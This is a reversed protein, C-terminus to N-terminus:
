PWGKEPHGQSLARKEVRRRLPVAAGDGEIPHNKCYALYGAYVAATTHEVFFGKKALAERAPLIGQEPILIVTREGPYGSNLIEEGRM